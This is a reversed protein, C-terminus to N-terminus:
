LNYTKIEGNFMIQKLLGKLISLPLKLSESNESSLAM